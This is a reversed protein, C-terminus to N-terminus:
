RAPEMHKEKFALPIEELMEPLDTYQATPTLLLALDFLWACHEDLLQGCFTTLPLSCICCHPNTDPQQPQQFGWASHLLRREHVVGNRSLRAERNEPACVLYLNAEVFAITPTLLRCRALISSSSEYLRGCLVICVSQTVLRVPAQPPITRLVSRFTKM